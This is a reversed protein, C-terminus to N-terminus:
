STKFIHCPVGRLPVAGVAPDWPPTSPTLINLNSEDWRYLESVPKEPFWWGFAALVIRKDINPNLAARQKIRGTETEIYVWDGDKIDLSKAAEPNIEVEPEPDVKRLNPINRLSSHFFVKPKCNTLLLPYKASTQPPQHFVPLPDYGMDKLQQSYIEVKNSPTRFGGKEYKKYGHSKGEFYGMTRVAQPTLGSPKIITDWASEVDPWFHQGMGLKKALENITKPDSWAEGPPDIIKPRPILRGGVGYAGLDNFELNMAAPLVLDALQASPTMFLDSVMFFDLKQLARYTERANPFTILANVAFTMLAKVAYPKEELIARILAQRPVFLNRAAIKFESGVMKSQDRGLTTLLIFDASRLVPAPTPMAEGGSVDLNGTIARLISIARCIQFSDIMQDIANGWHIAAPQSTAYLRATEAIQSAPVWTNEEIQELSYGKLAEVLKDFGVTWQSVFQRDYLGEDIIVKLIGMVLFGDSGPRLRLWIDARKALDIDQPNIVIIKTGQKLVSDVVAKTATGENTQNVNCGWVILCRPFHAYDVHSPSGHTFNAGLVRPMHCIAGPSCMNPTGFATAFRQAMTIELGKPHGTALAVSRPGFKEKIDSLRQAAIDLAEDWSTRQWKGEGRAGVRKQPYTLRDPHYLIKLLSAGKPCLTGKNTPCDPDGVVKVAKGNKVTVLIGCAGGCMRGCFTKFVKEEATQTEM